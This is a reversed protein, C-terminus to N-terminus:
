AAIAAFPGGSKQRPAKETADEDEALAACTLVHIFFRRGKIWLCKKLLCQGQM